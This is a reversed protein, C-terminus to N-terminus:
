NSLRMQEHLRRARLCFAELKANILQPFPSGDSEIALFPLDTVNNLMATVRADNRVLTLKDERTMTENLIAESLRNPMCGFPGIAIVGCTHSVVDSMAGGITLVAEGALHHSIYDKANEVLMDVDIPEAHILGSASLLKKIRREDKLMISQKLWIRLKTLKSVHHDSISKLQLYETYHMWEAVPSCITAFGQEALLQTLSQRSLPDRRVFIEGTLSIVPVQDVPLRLPIEALVAATKSLQDELFSFDGKELSVLVKQWEDEFHKISQTPNVANALIMSRLDEFV